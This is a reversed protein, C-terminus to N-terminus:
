GSAADLGLGGGGPLERGRPGCLVGARTQDAGVALLPLLVLARLTLPFRRM